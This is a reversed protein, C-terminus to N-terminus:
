AAARRLERQATLADQHAMWLLDIHHHKAEATAVWKALEVLAAARDKARRSLLASQLKLDIESLYFRHSGLQAACNFTVYGDRDLDLYDALPQPFEAHPNGCFGLALARREDWKMVRYASRRADDDMARIDDKTFRM